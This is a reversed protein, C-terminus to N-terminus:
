NGLIQQRIMEYQADDLVGQRHLETMQALHAQRASDVQARADTAAELVGPVDLGVASGDNTFFVEGAGIVTTPAGYRASV